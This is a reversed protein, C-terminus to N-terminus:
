IIEEGYIFDNGNTDYFCKGTVQDKLCAKGNEDIHPLLYIKYNGDKDKICLYFLKMSTSDSITGKNNYGFV